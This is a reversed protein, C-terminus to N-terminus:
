IVDETLEEWILTDGLGSNRVFMGNKPQDASIPLVLLPTAHYLSEQMSVIGGHTIFLKVNDHALIDQQPLWKSIMVNDPIDELEGEYKWIVRQPLRRFAKIFLDRYQVPMSTSRTMSGLTFYIVGSSGAGTIWTELEQPLPNGPRCHMSGVEVQSPLLPLPMSISFHTNLLTLSLNRELQLLPPLKPFQASIEKQILPVIAWKRWYFSMVSHDLFNLLRHWVSMPKPFDFHMPVYAPNLVNGLIASQRPDMGPTALTIFPVEHLFPYAVENFMHNIVILDFEKRREYIEKVVPVKYLDRAIAPLAVKLHKFPGSRDKRYDFMNVNDQSMHPLGHTVEHINAHKSTKPHNSLMVIKHGRQALAEALAMFINKHSRSGVPFLMLIKYSKEPPSLTGEASAVAAMLLACLIGLNM